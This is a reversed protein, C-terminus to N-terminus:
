HNHLPSACIIRPHKKLLAFIHAITAITLNAQGKQIKTAQSPSVGLRRVLENFGIKEQLMYNTVAETIDKQLSTFVIKELEAQETIENIENTSLRNKLYEEFNKTKM